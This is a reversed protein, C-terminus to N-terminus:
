SHTRTARGQQTSSVTAEAALDRLCARGLGTTSVRVQAGHARMRAGAKIRYDETASGANTVTALRHDSDPDVALVDVAFGQGPDIDAGALVRLIRKPGADNWWYRRSLLEGNIPELDTVAPDNPDDGDEREEMLFLKGARSVGFLRLRGAHEAVLMTHIGTPFDDASEWENNLANFVIMRNPWESGPGPFTLWYRNDFYVACSSGVTAENIEELLDSVPESLPVTLGRLKVDQFGGDLRMVGADSLFYVYAGATVVTRRARCGAEATILELFSAGADLSLGTADLAPVARYISKRGFVLIQGDAFPHLATIRDNSGANARFSKWLPDYTEPDLVDSIYVEDKEPSAALVMQSNTYCAVGASPMRKYTAGAPHNGGTTKLFNGSGGDWVLPPKVRRAKLTGTATGAGSTVAFTVTNADVKTIDFEHLYVAQDAGEIRIRHGTSWGHATATLTATGAAETISSVAVLGFDGEVERSRMLYLRDFAQVVDIKDEAEFIEGAPVTKEIVTEGTRYLYIKDSGALVIWEDGNGTEDSKPSSFVGAAFIGGTYADRVIPGSDDAALVFPLTLPLDEVAVDDALRKIGKRLEARGRGFRMNRASAAIGQPLTAPDPRSRFGLWGTDGDIAIQSDLLRSDM